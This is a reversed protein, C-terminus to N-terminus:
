RKKPLAAKGVHGIVGLGVIISVAGLVVCWIWAKGAM